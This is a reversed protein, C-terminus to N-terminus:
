GSPEDVILLARHEGFVLSSVTIFCMRANVANVVSQQALRAAQAWCDGGGASSGPHALPRGFVSVAMFIAGTGAKGIGVAGSL